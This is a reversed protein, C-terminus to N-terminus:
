QAQSCDWGDCGNKWFWRSAYDIGIANFWSLDEGGFVLQMEGNSNVPVGDLLIANETFSLSHGELEMAFPEDSEKLLKGDHVVAYYDSRYDMNLDRSFGAAQLQQAEFSPLGHHRNGSFRLLVTCPFYKADDMLTYVNVNRENMLSWANYRNQEYLLGDYVPDYASAHVLGNDLAYKAYDRTVIDAGWSNNHASDGNMDIFWHNPSATIEDIYPISKTDLYKWVAAKMNTSAQDMLFPACTFIVTAGHSHCLSIIDDIQQKQVDTLEVEWDVDYIALPTYKLQQPEQRVYGLETNFGKSPDVAKAITEPHLLDMQKWQDHNLYLDFRYMLKTKWDLKEANRLMADRNKESLMDGAVYYVEDAYCNSSQPLLTYIDVYILSPSQSEFAEQIIWYSADFPQCMSAFVYSYAGTLAYYVGPNFAYQMHSSGVALVQVTDAPLNHFSDGETGRHIRFYPTLFSWCCVFLSAALVVNMVLHLITAIVKVARQM